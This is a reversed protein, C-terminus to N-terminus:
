YVSVHVHDMHNATPSGRDSMYRWGESAREPTWIHQQWIVDYVHLAAAHARVWDAVAQGTGLDSIMFDVAHGDAHEGHPSYGGYTTLQPFANCVARFMLVASSTLGSETSSGDPCPATSLGGSPAVGGSTDHPPRPKHQALYDANVWRVLRHRDGLLVQAWHGTWTGTVAVKSGSDILGFRKGQEGPKAWINLPATAFEHDSPVPRMTVPQATRQASRSINGRRSDALARRDGATVARSSTDTTATGTPRASVGVTFLTATAIGLAVAIRGANDVLSKAPRGLNRHRPM